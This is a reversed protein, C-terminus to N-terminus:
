NEPGAPVRDLAAWAEAREKARQRDLQVASWANARAVHMADGRFVLREVTSLVTRVAARRGSVQSPLAGTTSITTM